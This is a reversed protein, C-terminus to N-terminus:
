SSECRDVLVRAFDFPPQPTHPLVGDYRLEVKVGIVRTERRLELQFQCEIREVVFECNVLVLVLVEVGAPGSGIRGM